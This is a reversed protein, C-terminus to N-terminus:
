AQRPFPKAWLRLMFMGGEEKMYLRSGTVLDEIYGGGEEFVVRNGAKILKSVSLLAKNVDCVQATMKRLEGNDGAAIFRKEGLNPILTGSAVEYRVGKKYPVGEVTEINALMEEFM